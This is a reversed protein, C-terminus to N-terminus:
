VGETALFVDRAFKAEAEAKQIRRAKRLERQAQVAQLRASLVKLEALLVRQQAETFSLNIEVSM